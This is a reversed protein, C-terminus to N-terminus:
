LEEYIGTNQTIDENAETTKINLKYLLCSFPMLMFNFSASARKSRFTQHKEALEVAGNGSSMANSGSCAIKFYLHLKYWETTELLTLHPYLSQLFTPALIDISNEFSKNM